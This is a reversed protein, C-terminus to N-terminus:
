KEERSADLKSFNLSPLSLHQTSRDEQPRIAIVSFQVDAEVFLMDHHRCASFWEACEKRGLSFAPSEMVLHLGLVKAAPDLHFHHYSSYAGSHPLLNVRFVRIAEEEEREYDLTHQILNVEVLIELINKSDKNTWNKEFVIKAPFLHQLHQSLQRLHSHSRTGLRIYSSMVYRILGLLMFHSICAM